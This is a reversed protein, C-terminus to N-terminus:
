WSGPKTAYVYRKGPYESQSWLQDRQPWYTMDEPGVPLAGNHPVATNGPNWVFVDGTKSDGNSRQIYYTGDVAAAGQMSRIGVTQAWDARAVGDDDEAVRHSAEDLDFRAVRTDGGPNGYESVVLSHPSSTRDLATQSYRLAPEGGASSPVYRAVQPIVYLYNHAQYTGDPQRGIAAGDGVDVKMVSSMDFVRMGNYTENVYLHDGYWVMGGAHSNVRQFSPQDGDWVPEVLLTHRYSPTAGGAMDVFSVRVGMDRGSNNDYWANLMIERGDVDGSDSADGTGTVGQPMWYEVGSDGRDWCFSQDHNKVPATCSQATRNASDAVESVPVAGLEAQLAAVLDPDVDSRELRLNAPDAEASADTSPWLTLAAAAVACVSAGALLRGHASEISLNM